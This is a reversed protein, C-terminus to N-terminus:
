DGPTEQGVGIQHSRKAAVESLVLIILQLFADPMPISMLLRHGIGTGAVSSSCPIVAPVTAQVRPCPKKSAEPPLSQM